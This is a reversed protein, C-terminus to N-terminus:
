DIPNPAQMYQSMFASKIADDYKCAPCKFDDQVSTNHRCQSIDDWQDKTKAPDSPCVFRMTMVELTRRIEEDSMKLLRSVDDLDIEVSEVKHGALPSGIIKHTRSEKNILIM